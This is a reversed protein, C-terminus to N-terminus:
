NKESYQFKGDQWILEVCDGELCFKINKGKQPLIFNFEIPDPDNEDYSEVVLSALEGAQPIIASKAGDTYNQYKQFRDEEFKRVGRYTIEELKTVNGNDYVAFVVYSECVPGCGTTEYAILKTGDSKNWYVVTHTSEARTYKLYGNQPDLSIIENNVFYENHAVLQDYLTQYERQKGKHNLLNAYLYFDDEIAVQEVLSLESIKNFLLTSDSRTLRKTEKPIEEGADSTMEASEETVETVESTSLNEKASQSCSSLLFVSVLIMAIVIAYPPYKM